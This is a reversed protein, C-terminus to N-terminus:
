TAGGRRQQSAAELATEVLLPGLARDGAWADLVARDAPRMRVLLATSRAEGPPLPPRGGPHKKRRRRAPADDTVRAGM